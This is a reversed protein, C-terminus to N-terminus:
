SQLSGKHGIRYQGWRPPATAKPREGGTAKPLRSEIREDVPAPGADDTDDGGEQQGTFAQLQPPVEPEEYQFDPDLAPMNSWGGIQGVWSRYEEWSVVGSEFAPKMVGTVLFSSAEAKELEARQMTELLHYQFSIRLGLPNFLQENFVPEIWIETDPIIYQDYFEFQLAEREARNTKAEALGPPIGYASLIQEKKAKELEPMALDTMTQGIVTPTLGRELVLTKFAKRVGQLMKNWVGEIRDKENPPVAGETTLFVAPIAGNAFFSSGYQNLHHVLASPHRAVQGSSVGERIDDAPNFLRFYLLEDATYTQRKAGVNQEFLTAKGDRWAKVKMTYANLVQLGTLRDGAMHKLVYAAGKLRLWAEVAWLTLRLDIGWEEASEKNEEDEPLEMPFVLYPIQAINSARQQVCWFVWAVLGYMERASADDTRNVLYDLFEDFDGIGVAKQLGGGVIAAKYPRRM